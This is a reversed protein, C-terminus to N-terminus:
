VHNNDLAHKKLIHWHIVNNYLEHKRLNYHFLCFTNGSAQLAFYIVAPLSCVCLIVVPTLALFVAEYVKKHRDSPMVTEHFHKTCFGNTKSHHVVAM